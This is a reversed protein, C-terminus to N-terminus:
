FFITVLNNYRCTEGEFYNGTSAICQGIHAKWVKFCRRFDNQSHVKLLEATKNQIGEMSQFHTGKLSSKLKPFLDLDLSYLAHELIPIQKRSLFQHVSTMQTSTCQRPVFDLQLEVFRIKKLGKRM